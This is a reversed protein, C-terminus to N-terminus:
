WINRVPFLIRGPIRNPPRSVLRTGPRAKKVAAARIRLPWCWAGTQWRTSSPTASIGYAGYGDLICSNSGDTPIGKLHIISLPIMTGDHGPVEVEESVLNEFGPYVIATNFISKTFTDKRADLDYTTRPLTWSTIAVLCRDSKWDPCSVTMTGSAPLKVEATKGTAFDYKVLRCVVGDSYVVLLFHKCKTM